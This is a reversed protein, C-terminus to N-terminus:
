KHVISKIENYIKEEVNKLETDCEKVLKMAKTYKEISSDLDIDGKELEEADNLVLNMHLDFSKLIGRFERDGKLKILIQLAQIPTINDLDLGSLLAKIKEYQM